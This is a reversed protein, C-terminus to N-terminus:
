EEFPEVKLSLKLKRDFNLFAFVVNELDFSGSYNSVLRMTTASIHSELFQALFFLKCESYVSVLTKKRTYNKLSM